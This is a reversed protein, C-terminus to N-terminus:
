QPDPGYILRVDTPNTGSLYLAGGPSVVIGAPGYILADQARGGNGSQGSSSATGALTSTTTATVTRLLFNNSDAVYLTGTSTDWSVDQPFCFTASANAGDAHGCTTGTGAYTSIKNDSNNVKRIQYGATQAIYLNGSGDITIGDNTALKVTGQTNAANGNGIGDTGLTACSHVSGAVTYVSHANTLTVNVFKDGAGGGNSLVRVICDGTDSIVVDGGSDIQLARPAFLTISTGTTGEGGCPAAACQSGAQGAITYVNGTTMTVGYQTTTGAQEDIERVVDGANESFFVDGSSDIAVGYPQDIQDSLAATGNASTSTGGTGAFTKVEGTGDNLWEKILNAAEDAMFINGHSDIALHRPDQLGWSVAQTGDGTAGASNVTGAANWMINNTTDIERIVDRTNDADYVYRGTSDVAVGYANNINAAYTGTAPYGIGTDNISGTGAITYIFDATMAQGFHTATSNAVARVRNNGDDGIVIDGSGDVTVNFPSGLKTAGGTASQGDGGYGGSTQGAVRYIDGKTMSQGYQTTTGAQQDIERIENNGTDAIFLDNSSDVALGRPGNLLASSAAGTDGTSGSSGSVGAFNYIDGATAGCLGNVNAVCRVTHNANDSIYINGQSDVAVDQPQNLKAVTTASVGSGLNGSANDQGAVIYIKGATMTQGFTSGGNYIECVVSRGYVAVFIDGSSDVTIGRSNGISASAAATGNVCAGASGQGTVTYINGATMSQGYYTGSVAPVMRIKDNGQDLIFLNNNSDLAIDWPSSLTSGSGGKALQGIADKCTTSSVTSSDAKWPASGKQTEIRYTYTTSTPSTANADTATTATYPTIQSGSASFTGNPGSTSRQLLFGDVWSYSAGLQTWNVNVTQSGTWQCTPTVTPLTNSGLHQSSWTGNVKGAATTDWSAVAPAAGSFAAVAVLFALTAIWRKRDSTSAV